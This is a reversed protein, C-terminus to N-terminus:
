RRDACILKVRSPANRAAQHTVRQIGDLRRRSARTSCTPLPCARAPRSALVFEQRVFQSGRYGAPARSAAGTSSPPFATERGCPTARRSEVGAPSPPFLQDLGDSRGIAVHGVPDHRTCAFGPVLRDRAPLQFRDAHRRHGPRRPCLDSGGCSPSCSRDTEAATRPSVGAPRARGCGSICRPRRSTTVIVSTGTFPRRHRAAPRRQDRRWRSCGASPSRARFRSSGPKDRRGRQRRKVRRPM